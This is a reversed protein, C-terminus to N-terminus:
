RPLPVGLDEHIAEVVSNDLGLEGALARLYSSEEDTDVRIAVLSVMYAEASLEQPVSASLAKVDILPSELERRLYDQEERSADGLEGMITDVESQSVEGDAKAANAMTRILLAADAETLEGGDGQDDDGSMQNKIGSVAGGLAGGLRRGGIMAGAMGGIMAGTRGGLMGGLMRGGQSGLLSGLMGIMKVGKWRYRGQNVKRVFRTTPDANSPCM